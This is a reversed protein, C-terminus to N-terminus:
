QKEFKIKMKYVDLTIKYHGNEGEKIVWKLDEGGKNAQMRDDTVPASAIVPRLTYDDYNQASLIKFEGVNLTINLEFLNPNGANMTFKYLDQPVGWGTGASGVLYLNPYPVNVECKLTMNDKRVEINYISETSIEFMNDPESDLTRNVLRNDGAGKNLSPLPEGLISIFKFYGPKLVGQWQYINGAEVETMKIAKTLGTGVPTADGTLYLTEPTPVYSKIELPIISIEPYIFKPGIVKAVVRAEMKIDSGPLLGWKNLILDNLEKNTYEVKFEEDPAFEIPETSTKFDAGFIDLRFFYVLTNEPGPDKGKNWTFSVAVDNGRAEDLVITDASAKLSLADGSSSEDDDNCAVFCITAFFITLIYLLRKQM